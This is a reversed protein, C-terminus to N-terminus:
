IQKKAWDQIENWNYKILLYIPENLEKDYNLSEIAEDVAENISKTYYDNRDIFLNYLSKNSETIDYSEERIKQAEYIIEALMISVNKNEKESNEDSENITLDCFPCKIKFDSKYFKSDCHPCTMILEQDERHTLGLMNGFNFDYNDNFNYKNWLSNIRNQNTHFSFKPIHKKVQDIWEPVGIYDTIDPTFKYQKDSINIKNNQDIKDMLLSEEDKTRYLTSLNQTYTNFYNTDIEEIEEIESIGEIYELPDIIFRSGNIVISASISIEDKMIHGLTIHLGDFSEEDADDVSSHFASMSGHSHIDGIMTYNKITFKRDYEMSAASVEQKPSIIKYDQTAENYFILLIAESAYKKYVDIFFRYMDAFIKEPIKPIYLRASSDVSNLISIRDVPVISDLIGLKKRLFIGEKGIIYFIDDIPAEQIGDNVFIKFM